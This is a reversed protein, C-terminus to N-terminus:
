EGRLYGNQFSEVLKEMSSGEQRTVPRVIDSEPTSLINSQFREGNLTVNGDKFHVTQGPVRSKMPTHDPQGFEIINSKFKEGNLDESGNKFHSKQGPQSSEMKSADPISNNSHQRMDQGM